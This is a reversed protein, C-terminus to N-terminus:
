GPIKELNAVLHMDMIGWQHYVAHESNIIKFNIADSYKVLFATASSAARNIGIDVYYIGSTFLCKFKWEAQFKDNEKVQILQLHSDRTSLGAYITGKEDKFNVGINISSFDKNFKVIFNLTYDERTVLQNVIRKDFTKICIDTIEIKDNRHVITSKPKFEEIYYAQSSRVTEEQNNPKGEEAKASGTEQVSDKEQDKLDNSFSRKVSDNSEIKAIEALVAPINQEKSYLLKQYYMTVMKAPGDLIVRGEHLLVARTCMQNISETAHSVFLITKGGKFFEQMKAFCKRRFLEDGVSLVEDLILIEPDINVSVAFALRAKMGSSYTKLPQYIFDGIEAFGLIQDLVADTEARTRGIISNYFYINELGTYEPNFGSGLELLPVVNGKVTVRGASPQIIGAITKLLTSKGSGNKGVIGLIEGRGIELSINNLAFFEKHYKRKLPHLAEKMRDKKNRYLKYKKSIGELKIVIDHQTM